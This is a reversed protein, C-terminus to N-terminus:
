KHHKLKNLLQKGNVVADVAAIMLVPLMPLNYREEIGRQFWALYVLYTVAIAYVAFKPWKRWSAALAVWILVFLSAHLMFFLIRFLEMLVNGRLTKQFMYMSLNSHLAMRGYVKLPGSVHVMLPCQRRVQCTLSDFHAAVHKEEDTFWQPVCQQNKFFPVQKRLLKQYDSFARTIEEKGVANIVKPPIFAVAREVSANASDDNLASQWLGAITSHFEDGRPSWTRAFNWAAKHAPRFLDPADTSYIPHLGVFQNAISYNRVQWATMPLLAIITAAIATAFRRKLGHFDTMMAALPLLPLLLGLVPRIIFLIAFVAASAYLWQSGRNQAYHSLLFLFAIVLAPTVGETLTYSLFGCAFPTCGYIIAACVSAIEYKTFKLALGYLLGASVAFLLMQFIKLWFLPNQPFIIKFILYIGGYGPSRLYYSNDAPSNARWVGNELYNDAPALYSADDATIVTQGDRLEIGDAKLQHTNIFNFLMASLLTAVGILISRKVERTM